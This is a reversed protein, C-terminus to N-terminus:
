GFRTHNNATPKVIGQPRTFGGADRGRAGGGQHAPPRFGGGGGGRDGNSKGGHSGGGRGSSGHRGNSGHGAHPGAGGATSNRGRFREPPPGPRNSAHIQAISPRGRSKGGGGPRGGGGGGGGKGWPAAGPGALPAFRRHWRDMGDEKCGLATHGQGGCNFCSLNKPRGDDPSCDVHGLGFCRLCRVQSLDLQLPRARHTIARVHQLFTAQNGERCEKSTHGTKLCQFCVEHPCRMAHHEPSGCLFCVHVSESRSAGTAPAAPSFYRAVEKKPTRSTSINTALSQPLAPAKPNLLDDVDDGGLSRLFSASSRRDEVPEEDETAGDGAWVAWMPIAIGAEHRLGERPSNFVAKNPSKRVRYKLLAWLM